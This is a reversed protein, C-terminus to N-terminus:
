DDSANRALRFGTDIFQSTPSFILTSTVRLLNVDSTAFGGGSASYFTTGSDVWPNVFEWVNGSMDYLGLENPLLSGVPRSLVSSLAPDPCLPGIANEAYWAVQSLDNGGAHYFGNSLQGGRAAYRWEHIDPLRYGNAAPNLTLTGVPTGSRFVSGDDLYVPDLGMLESAANCWKVIDYFSIGSIPLAPNCLALGASFGYGNELALARVRQWAQVTVETKGMWFDEAVTISPYTFLPLAPVTGSAVLVMESLIGTGRLQFANDGANATHAVLAEDDYPELELPTFTVPVDVSLGSPIPGSWDATFGNPMVFGSVEFTRGGINSITMSLTKSTGLTVESFDLESTVAIVTSELADLRAQLSAVVQALATADASTQSHAARLAFPVSLLRVGSESEGGNVVLFLYIEPQDWVSPPASAGFVFHYVGNVVQVPGIVEEHLLTPGSLGNYLRVAM